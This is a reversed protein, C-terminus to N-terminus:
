SLGGAIILYACGAFIALYALALFGFYLDKQWAPTQRSLMAWGILVALLSVGFLVLTLQDYQRLDAMFRLYLPNTPM